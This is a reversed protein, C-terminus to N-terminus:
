IVTSPSDNYRATVGPRCLFCCDSAVKVSDNLM